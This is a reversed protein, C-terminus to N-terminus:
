KNLGDLTELRSLINEVGPESSDASEIFTRYLDKSKEIQGMMEYCQGLPWVINKLRHPFKNLSIEFYVSAQQWQGKQFYKGALEFAAHGAIFRDPYQEVVLRLNQEIKVDADSSNIKGEKKLVDYYRAMVYYTDDNHEHEPYRTLLIECYEIGKVPEGLEYGYVVAIGFLSAETLSTQPLDKIIREKIDISNYFYRIAEQASGQRYKLNIANNYYKQAIRFVEQASSALSNYDAIFMDIQAFANPDDNADILSIIDMRELAMQANVAQPSAPFQEIVKYYISKTFENPDFWNREDIRSGFDFVVAPLQPKDNFDNILADIALLTNPEDNADIFPYVAVKASEFKAGEAWSSEPFQEIIYSYIDLGKDYKKSWIYRGAIYTLAEPLKENSAYNAALKDTAELAATDNSDAIYSIALGMQAWMSHESSPWNDIVAQYLNRADNNKGFWYYADAVEFVAQAINPEGSYNTFLKELEAQAETLNEIAINSIVVGRQAFIAKANYPFSDVIYKYASRASRFQGKERYKEAIEYVAPVVADTSGYDTILKEFAAKASVSNSENIFQITLQKQQEIFEINQLNEDSSQAASQNLLTFASFVMLIFALAFIFPISKRIM